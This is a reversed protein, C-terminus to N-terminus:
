YQDCPMGLRHAFCMTDPAERDRSATSDRRLSDQQATTTAINRSRHARAWQFRAGILVVIVIIFAILSRTIRSRV